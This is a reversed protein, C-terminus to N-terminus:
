GLGSSPLLTHPAYDISDAFKVHPRMAEVFVARLDDAGAHAQATVLISELLDEGVDHQDLRRRLAADISVAPIPPAAPADRASAQGDAYANHALGRRIKTLWSSDDM